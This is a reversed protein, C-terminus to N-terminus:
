RRVLHLRRMPVNVNTSVHFIFKRMPPNLTNILIILVGLGGDRKGEAGWTVQNLAKHSRGQTYMLFRTKTGRSGFGNSSSLSHIWAANTVM